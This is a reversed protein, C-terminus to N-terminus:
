GENRVRQHTVREDDRVVDAIRLSQTLDKSDHLSIALVELQRHESALEVGTLEDFHL